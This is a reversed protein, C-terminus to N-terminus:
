FTRKNMYLVYLSPAGEGRTGGEGEPKKEKRKQSWILRLSLSVASCKLNHKLCLHLNPRAEPCWLFTRMTVLVSHDLCHHNVGSIVVHMEKQPTLSSIM